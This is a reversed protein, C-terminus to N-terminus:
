ALALEYNFEGDKNLIAWPSQKLIAQVDPMEAMFGKIETCQDKHQQRYYGGQGKWARKQCSRGCYRIGQCAACSSYLPNSISEPCCACCAVSSSKPVKGARVDAADRYIHAFRQSM